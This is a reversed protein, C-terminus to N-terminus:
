CLKVFLIVQMLFIVPIGIVFYWHKTKHHFAYMGVWVGLSGGIISILFLVKEPIRYFHHRAKYKDIGMVSIGIMNIFIFYYWIM